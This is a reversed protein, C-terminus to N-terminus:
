ATKVTILTYIQINYIWNSLYFLDDREKAFAPYASQLQNFHFTNAESM